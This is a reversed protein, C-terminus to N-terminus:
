LGAEALALLVIALGFLRWAPIRHHVRRLPGCCPAHPQSRTGASYCPQAGHPPFHMSSRDM